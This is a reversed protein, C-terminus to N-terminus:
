ALLGMMSAAKEPGDKLMRDLATIAGILVAPLVFTRENESFGGLVLDRTEAQARPDDAAPSVGIKLRTFDRSGLSTELSRIGNHGGNGSGGQKLRIRGFEIDIDDQVVWVDTAAVKFFRAMPAVSEGSLNMFTQPKVLLVRRGPTPEYEAVFANYKGVEVFRLDHSAAFADLVMFGANHRTMAYEPGPNGLGVIIQSPAAM